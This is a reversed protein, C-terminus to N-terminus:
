KVINKYIETIKHAVTDNELGLEVIRQRGQTRGEFAMALELKEALDHADYKAMYCGDIGSSIDIVDGVDVSVLPCGCAMVEKVFQPSGETFSTMVAADVANMLLNVEERSYGKLEVLEVEKLLNVARQALDSNKVRNAFSGSFLVYKRSPLFKFKARAEQKDFLQFNTSDIGCPLLQYHKHPAAITINRQSVFISYASFSMALKSFRLVSKNNIDSGHFTTVVPVKRQMNALLGSLGYHAHIIQPDFQKIVRILQSINKLYGIVGHGQIGFFLLDHGNNELAQAQEVIFPAYFGQNFSAVILIKM